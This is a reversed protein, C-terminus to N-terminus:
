AAAAEKEHPDFKRRSLFKWAVGQLEKKLLQKIGHKTGVHVFMRGSPALFQIVYM